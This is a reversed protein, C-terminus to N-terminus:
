AARTATSFLGALTRAFRRSGTGRRGKALFLSQVTEERLRGLKTAFTAASWRPGKRRAWVETWAVLAITLAAHRQVSREKRVEASDLGLQNKLVSFLQEITWRRAFYEIIEAASLTTDTSSLFATRRPHLPDKTLVVKIVRSGTVWWALFETALLQVTQGYIQVTLPAWDASAHRARLSIAKGHAALRGRQGKRRKPPDVERLRADFRLRSVLHIGMEGLPAAIGNHNYAGDALLVCRGSFWSRIARLAEVALETRTRFESAPCSKKPRYLSIWLPVSIWAWTAVQVVLAVVVWDHGWVVRGRPQAGHDFHYGTGFIGRGVKPVLTDDLSLVIGDSPFTSRLLVFLSSFLVTLRWKGSSLFRYYSSLSRRRPALAALRTMCRQGALLLWPVAIALV